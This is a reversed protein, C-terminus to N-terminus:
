RRRRARCVDGVGRDAPVRRVGAARRRPAPALAHVGGVIAGRDGLAHRDAQADGAAERDRTVSLDGYVTLALTRPIPTATMHLVHPSRGEVLAKRQEVGFRHQEDIVAVALRPLEVGEQILAHTGVVLTRTPIARSALGDLLAVRVGLQACLAEITLFHQEALTETPAMLAGQASTERRRAAARVARRGDQGLRRRGAPAAADASHRALDADIEAIAREQHETLEFPLAARYRALLEGPEGLAPAVRRRARAHRARSASSSCSCSRSRSARAHASRRRRALAAPAARAACRGEVPPGAAAEAGGAAPRAVDRPLAALVLERLKKPTVDEGAPYVPVLEAHESAPEHTRVAFTGRRLSGILRLRMGPRLQEAVWPQNFWTARIQGSDDSVTAEVISMRRRPSRKSVRGVTGEISVEGGEGFLSSIPSAGVYRFPAHELLDRM